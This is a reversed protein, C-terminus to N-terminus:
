KLLDNRQTSWVSMDNGSEYEKSQVCIVWGEQNVPQSIKTVVIDEPEGRKILYRELDARLLTFTKIRTREKM